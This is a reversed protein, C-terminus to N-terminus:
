STRRVERLGDRCARDLMRIDVSYALFRFGEDIRARLQVPDPEVVHVGGPKGARAAVRKIEEFVKHMRPHDFEGPIGLSASLDYPGIIYADVGDVSLIAELNQVAEADEIQVILVADCELWRCYDDFKAGYEHARGLGVGRRGRLPYYLSQVAVEADQRSNVMPILVGHAGADMVRKIQDPSNSTVRVLPTSGALDIVRILEGAESITTVSHELDVVVWEFGSRVMIEAIAPTSLTMWTGITVEHAALAKKLSM